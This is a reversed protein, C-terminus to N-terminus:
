VLLIKKNIEMIGLLDIIPKTELNVAGRCVRVAEIVFRIKPPIM